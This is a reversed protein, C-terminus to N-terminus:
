TKHSIQLDRGCVINAFLNCYFYMYVDILSVHSGYSVLQLQQMDPLPFSFAPVMSICYSYVFMQCICPFFEPENENMQRSSLILAPMPQFQWRIKFFKRVGDMQVDKTLDSYNETLTRSPLNKNSVWVFDLGCYIKTSNQRFVSITSFRLHRSRWLEPDFLQCLSAALRLIEM